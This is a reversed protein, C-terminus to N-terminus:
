RHYQEYFSNSIADAWLYTVRGPVVAREKAIASGERAIAILDSKMIRHIATWKKYAMESVENENRYLELEENAKTLDGNHKFVLHAWITRTNAVWCITPNLMCSSESGVGISFYKLGAQRVLLPVDLANRTLLVQKSFRFLAAIAVARVNHQLIKPGLNHEAASFNGINNSIGLLLEVFDDKEGASLLAILQKHAKKRVTYHEKVDTWNRVKTLIRKGDYGPESPTGGVAGATIKM